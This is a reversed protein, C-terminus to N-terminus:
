SHLADFLFKSVPISARYYDVCHAVADKKLITDADLEVWYYFQKNAIEPVETQLAKYDPKLVKNREGQVTGWKTRFAKETVAKKWGIPNHAISARIDELQNKDPMYIGGALAFSSAGAQIYLGPYAMDKRGGPAIAASAYTKYPTKDKSFRTDRYIRFIASAPDILLHKDEKGLVQILEAVFADFPQKVHTEYRLKQSAFWERNNHAELDSFFSLFDPTIKNM